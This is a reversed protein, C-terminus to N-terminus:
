ADRDRARQDADRRREARDRRFSGCFRRSGPATPASWLSSSAPTAAQSRHIRGAAQWQGRLHRQPSGVDSDWDASAANSCSTSSSPLASSPWSSASRCSPRRSWSVPSSTPVSCWRRAWFRARRCCTPTTPGAILRVFHPVVIGLFGIIGAVAVAAGVWAATAVIMLRKTKRGRRGSPLGGGRRVPLRQARAGPPPRSAPPTRRVPRRRPGQEWSAGALSGLTWLTLDRLARDDSAFAILGLLAQALAAIAIGALLLTGIVTQGHRATIAVLVM